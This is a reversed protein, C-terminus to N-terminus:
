QCRHAGCGTWDVKSWYILKKEASYKENRAIKTCTDAPSENLVIHCVPQAFLNQSLNREFQSHTSPPRPMGREAERVSMIMTPFQSPLFRQIHFDCNCRHQTIINPFVDVLSFNHSYAPSRILSWHIAILKRRFKWIINEFINKVKLVLVGQKLDVNWKRM